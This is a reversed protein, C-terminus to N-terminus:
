LQKLLLTKGGNNPGALVTMAKGQRSAYFAEVEPAFEVNVRAISSYSIGTAKPRQRALTANIVLTHSEIKGAEYLADLEALTILDQEWQEKEDNFYSWEKKKSAMHEDGSANDDTLFIAM